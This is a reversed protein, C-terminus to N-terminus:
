IKAKSPAKVTSHHKVFAGMALSLSVSRPSPVYGFGHEAGKVEVFIDKVSSNKAKRLQQLRGFFAQSDDFAALTDDTGHVLLFPCLTDESSADASEVMADVIHSPSGDLFHQRHQDSSRDFVVGEMFLVLGGPGNLTSLDLGENVVHHQESDLIDHVGYIDVCGRVSTDCPQEAEPPDYASNNATLAVLSCLHGGASEGAVFIQEPDGGFQEVNAKLWLLARKCDILHEPFRVDPSLRYNIVCAVFDHTAVMYEIASKAAFMKDGVTWGGGHIYMVVPRLPRRPADEDTNELRVVDMSLWQAIRGRGMFTNLMKLGPTLKKWRELLPADVEALPAYAETSRKLKKSAGIDPLFKKFPFLLALLMPNWPDKMKIGASSLASQYASGSNLATRLRKLHLWVGYVNLAVLVKGLTSRTVRQNAWMLGGTCAVQAYTILHVVEPLFMRPFVAKESLVDWGLSGVGMWFYVWVTSADAWFDRRGLVQKALPWWGEAQGNAM